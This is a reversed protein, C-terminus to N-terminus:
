LDDVDVLRDQIARAVLSAKTRAPRGVNAYKIRMRDLYPNFTRVSIGLSGLAGRLAPPV